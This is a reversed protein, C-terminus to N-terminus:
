HYSYYSVLTSHLDLQFYKSFLVPKRSNFKLLLFHRLLFIALYRTFGTPTMNTNIGVGRWDTDENELSIAEIDGKLNGGQDADVLLMHQQRLVNDGFRKSCTRLFVFRCVTCMVAILGEKRM